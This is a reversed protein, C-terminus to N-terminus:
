KEEKNDIDDISKVKENLDNVKEAIKEDLTTKSLIFKLVAHWVKLLADKIENM